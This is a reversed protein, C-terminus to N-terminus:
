DQAFVPISSTRDAPLTASQGRLLGHKLAWMVHWTVTSASVTDELSKVVAGLTVHEDVEIARFVSDLVEIRVGQTVAKARDAVVQRHRSRVPQLVLDHTAHGAAFDQFWDYYRPTDIQPTLSPNRAALPQELLDRWLDFYQQRVSSMSFQAARERSATGMRHRLETNQVLEMVSKKWIEIDMAVSQGLAHHDHAWGLLFGSHRLDEDCRAWLTPVLFGTVGHRVTDRYGSWDAVVQPVGYAMAEVVTLGFAEQVTDAPSTFIDAAQFLTDKLADTPDKFVRLRSVPFGVARAFSLLARIYEDDGGGAVGFVLDHRELEGTCESLALLCPFLDAKLTSILGFYLLFTCGAPLKLKRKAATKDGPRLTDTDIPLPIVDYRGAFRRKVGYRRDLTDSLSDLLRHLAAKSQTSSCVFADQPYTDCLLVRTFHEFLMSHISTGHVTSVVPYGIDSFRDRLQYVLSYNAQPEYWLGIGDLAGREALCGVGRVRFRSTPPSAKSNLWQHFHAVPAGGFLQFDFPADSNRLMLCNLLNESAIALGRVADQQRSPQPRSFMARWRNAFGPRANRISEYYRPVRPLLVGVGKKQAQAGEARDIM